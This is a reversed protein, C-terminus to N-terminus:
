NISELVDLLRRGVAQASHNEKFATLGALCMRGRLEGDDVLTGVAEELSGYSWVPLVSDLDKVFENRRLLVIPTRTAWCHGIFGWGGPAAASMAFESVTLLRAVEALSLGLYIELSPGLEDRWEGIGPRFQNSTILRFKRILGRDLLKRVAVLLARPNKNAALAGAFIASGKEPIGPPGLNGPDTCWPVYQTNPHLNRLKDLHEVDSPDCTIIADAHHGVWRYFETGTPRGRVRYGLRSIARMTNTTAARWAQEYLVAVPRDIGTAALLSRTLPLNFDQICLVADFRIDRLAKMALLAAVEPLLIAFEYSPWPRLIRLRGLVTEKTSTRISKSPNSRAALCVVEHGQDAIWKLAQGIDNVALDLAPITVLINL